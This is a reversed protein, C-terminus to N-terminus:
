PLSMPEFFGATHRFHSDYFHVFAAIKATFASTGKDLEGAEESKQNELQRKLQIRFITTLLESLNPKGLHCVLLPFQTSIPRLRTKLTAIKSSQVPSLFSSFYSLLALLQKECPREHVKGLCSLSNVTGLTM